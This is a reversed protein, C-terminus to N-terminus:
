GSACIKYYQSVFPNWNYYSGMYGINPGAGDEAIHWTACRRAGTVVFAQVFGQNGEVDWDPSTHNLSVPCNGGGYTGCFWETSWSHSYDGTSQINFHNYMGDCHVWQGSDSVCGIWYRGTVWIEEQSLGANWNGTYDMHVCVRGNVFSTLSVQHCSNTLQTWDWTQYNAYIVFPDGGTGTGSSIGPTYAGAPGASLFVVFLSALVAIAAIIARRM